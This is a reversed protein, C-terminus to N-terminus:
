KVEREKPQFVDDELPLRSAEEFDKKRGKGWAWVWIGIFVAFVVVTWYSHITAQISTIDM